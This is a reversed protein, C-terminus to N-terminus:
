RSLRTIAVDLESRFGVLDRQRLKTFFKGYDRPSLMNFQYRAALKAKELWHNLRDFHARAYEHKKINEMSPEKIESDDKIEVVFVWDGQKIFFDPSFEGRKPHEGKKWAYEIAYFGMPTNKLWADVHAAYDRNCLKRVFKREPAADAIVLNAPTKFDAANAVPERGNGFDGDPDELERFFEKQEDELTAECGPPYFVRKTRGRLEAASCSEAQREGTNLTVLAKPSLKYVVRKAAKRRLTGLAQLFKQRNEDTIRGHKIKARKLSERVIAECKALPFKKAYATRDKPDDADKSEEDISKLRQFMQEAVAEASWTKHQIETKFKVHEGTVAREFEITVDEAEVQAPLDVFGEELLRYEGKKAYESTDEDRTYDLHHLEFNWRSAADVRSTLRREIELIENVLHRIRGSWADHNFVTVMPDEGQWEEPRRLGRGLVQAILLKSNFAREEHPVIQFVNKVDWGESLMSVSVIWEVKSAPHDVLKLKAVNPQHRASSTVPLVKAAAQEASIGEWEELFEKLEEAVQECSRIDRTVIITLPRIKRTKLKRKWAAHRKYILQWREDANDTEPMEAVYEVKKVFREEIAQRLSYRHIVDAFYEDDVYCTGSVGVVMRFGYDPNRLFEKWKKAEAGGANAVHHTEDNLVAVRAGKGKLSDRISSKVNELIAHYNEVCISGDVISESANIIKPARLKAEAPLADRLNADAALERFKGLLGAEITNSPCLVLVRDVAGEALLIMALGYLVYSKGTGTAQDISCSLQDPLQLHKEMGAWSGYRQQLEDNDDFNEKALERLNAYKGGHLYRLTTRIAEKQYERSGCLEDLFAEYCSEDWVQPDIDTTVKLVLDENRFTRRDGRTSM